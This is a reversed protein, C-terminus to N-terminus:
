FVKKLEGECIHYSRTQDYDVYFRASSVYEIINRILADELNKAYYVGNYAIHEHLGVYYDESENNEIWVWRDGGVTIAFPRVLRNENCEYEYTCIKDIDM